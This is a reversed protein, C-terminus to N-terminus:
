DSKEYLLKSFSNIIVGVHKKWTYKNIVEQRANKGLTDFLKSDNLLEIVKNSFDEVNGPQALLATKRDDLIDGIQDLDSAVIPKGMAMYEFLKTPSGFFKSGDPNPVHPSVLIDCAALYRPAQEQPVIGTLTTHQEVKDKKIIELLKPKLLGDGIILFHLNKNRSKDIIKKISQALIDVGHWAGFTGVFGIITKNALNYKDRVQSNNRFREPNFKNSDVCNPYFVIKNKNIGTKVLEERLIKSVVVILDAFKINLKEINEATKRMFMKKSWHKAVWVESGNYELIFPVKFKLKLLVGSFNLVSYRQYLIFNSLNRTLYKRIIKYYNFTNAISPIEPLNQFIKNPKIIIKRFKSEKNSLYETTFLKTNYGFSCFGNLVGGVHGLSGGAKLGVPLDTKLFVLDNTKNYKRQVPNKQRLTLTICITKLFIWASVFIEFVIFPIEKFIEWLNVKQKHNNDDIIAKDKAKALFLLLKIFILQVQYDLSYILIYFKNYKEKRVFKLMELFSNQYFFSKELVKFNQQSYYSNESNYIKILINKM